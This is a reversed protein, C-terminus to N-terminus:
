NLLCNTRMNSISINKYFDPSIMMKKEYGKERATDAAETLRIMVTTTLPPPTPVLHVRSLRGTTQRPLWCKAWPRRDPLVSRCWSSAEAGTGVAVRIELVQQGHLTPMVLLTFAAGLIFFPTLKSERSLNSLVQSM